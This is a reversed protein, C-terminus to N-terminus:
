STQSRPKRFMLKDLSALYEMNMEQYLALHGNQRFYSLMDKNKAYYIWNNTCRFKMKDTWMHNTRSQRHWCQSSELVRPFVHWGSLRGRTFLHGEVQLKEYIFDKMFITYGWFLIFHSMKSTSIGIPWKYLKGKITHSFHKFFAHISINGWTRRAWLLDISIRFLYFSPLLHSQPGENEPM